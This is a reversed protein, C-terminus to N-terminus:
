EANGKPPRTSQISRGIRQEFQKLDDRFFTSLAASQARIAKREEGLDGGGAFVKSKLKESKLANVLRNAGAQRLADSSKRVIKALFPSRPVGAENIANRKLDESPPIYPLGLIECVQRCFADPHVSLDDYFLFLTTGPGLKEEWMLTNKFYLGPDVIDPKAKIMDLMTRSPEGAKRYHFYHSIARDIPDRVTCIIKVGPLDAAVRKAAEPKHFLSPAVEVCVRKAPDSSFQSSYWDLGKKYSKDFFFTEKTEVPLSVDGRERLYSDIWTTGSKTPGVFLFQPKM